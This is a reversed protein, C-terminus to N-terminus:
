ESLYPLFSRQCRPSLREELAATQLPGFFIGLEFPMAALAQLYIAVMDTGDREGVYVAKCPAILEISSPYVHREAEPVRMPKSSMGYTVYVVNNHVPTVFRGLFGGSVAPFRGVSVPPTTGARAELIFDASRGFYAEYKTFKGNM